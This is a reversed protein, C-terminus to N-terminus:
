RRQSSLGEGFAWVRFYSRESISGDLYFHVEWVVTVIMSWVEWNLRLGVRIRLSLLEVHSPM